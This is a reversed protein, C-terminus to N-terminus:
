MLGEAVPADARVIASDTNAPFQQATVWDGMGAVYPLYDGTGDGLLLEAAPAPLMDGAIDKVGHLVVNFAAGVMLDRKANPGKLLMGGVYGVFPVSLVRVATKILGAVMPSKDATLKELGVMNALKVTANVGVFGVGATLGSKVIGTVSGVTPLKFPNVRHGKLGLRGRRKQFFRGRRKYVVPRHRM